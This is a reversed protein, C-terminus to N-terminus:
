LLGVVIGLQDQASCFNDQDFLGNCSDFNECEAQHTKILHYSIDTYHKCIETDKGNHYKALAVAYDLPTLKAKDQLNVNAQKEVLKDITACKKNTLEDIFNICREHFINNTEIEVNKRDYYIDQGLVAYHLPRVHHMDGQAFGEKSISLSESFEDLMCNRLLYASYHIPTYGEKTGQNYNLKNEHIKTLEKVIHCWDLKVLNHLILIGKKDGDYVKEKEKSLIHQKDQLKNLLEEETCYYKLSGVEGTNNIMSRMNNNIYQIHEFISIKEVDQQNEGKQKMKCITKSDICVDNIANMVIMYAADTTKLKKTKSVQLLSNSEDSDYESVVKDELAGTDDFSTSSDSSPVETESYNHLDQKQDPEIQFLKIIKEDKYTKRGVIIDKATKGLENKKNFNLKQAGEKIDLVMSYFDIASNSHFNGYKAFAHLITESLGNGDCSMNIEESDYYKSLQKLSNQIKQKKSNVKIVDSLETPSKLIDYLKKLENKLESDIAKM